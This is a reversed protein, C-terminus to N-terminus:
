IYGFWGVPRLRARRLRVGGGPGRSARTYIQIAAPGPKGAAVSTGELGSDAAGGRCGLIPISLAIVSLFVRLSRSKPSAGAPPMSRSEGLYSPM